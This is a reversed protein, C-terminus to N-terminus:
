TAPNPPLGKLVTDFAPMDLEQSSCFNWVWGFLSRLILTKGFQAAGSLVTGNMGGLMFKFISGFTATRGQTLLVWTTANLIHQFVSTGAATTFFDKDLHLMEFTMYTHQQWTPGEQWDAPLVSESEVGVKQQQTLVGTALRGILAPVFILFSSATMQGFTVGCGRLEVLAEVFVFGSLMVAIGATGSAEEYTQGRQMLAQTVFPCILAFFAYFSFMFPVIRVSGTIARVSCVPIPEGYIKAFMFYFVPSAMLVNCAAASNKRVYDEILTKDGILSAQLGCSRYASMLGSVAAYRQEETSMAVGGVVAALLAGGQWFGSDVQGERLLWRLGGEEAAPAAEAVVTSLLRRQAPKSAGLVDALDHHRLAAATSAKNGRLLQTRAKHRAAKTRKTRNHRLPSGLM